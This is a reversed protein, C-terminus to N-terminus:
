LVEYSEGDVHFISYYDKNREKMWERMRNINSLEAQCTEASSDELKAKENTADEMEAIEKQTLRRESLIGTVLLQSGILEQSFSEIEGGAEVRLTVNEDEGVIFCRKGSHVCVHTVDGKVQIMQGVLQDADKLLDDLAYITIATENVEASENSKKNGCSAMLCTILALYLLRKM